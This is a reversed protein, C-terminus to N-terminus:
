LCTRCAGSRGCRRTARRCWRRGRITAARCLCSSASSCARSSPWCRPWATLSCQTLPKARSKRKYTGSAGNKFVAASIFSGLFVISHPPSEALRALVQGLRAFLEPDDLFLDPGLVVLKEALRQEEARMREELARDLRSQSGLFDPYGYVERSLARPEPPPLAVSRAQFRESRLYVGQLLYINGPVIYENTSPCAALDLEVSGSPDEAWYQGNAGVNLLGLVLFEKGHRGLMNKISTIAHWTAAAVSHLSPAQFADQRLIRHHVLHYHAIKTEFSSKASGLTAVSPCREFHKRAANYVWKHQTFADVVQWFPQIDDGGDSHEAEDDARDRLELQRLVDRVGDDVFLGRDEEKWRRGLNDLFPESSVRWDIGFKHGIHECLVTLAPTTLNLAHKKTLIRYAIPRLHSPKLVIPLPKISPSSSRQRPSQTNSPKRQLVRDGAPPDLPLLM